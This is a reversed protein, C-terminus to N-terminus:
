IWNKQADMKEKTREDPAPAVMLKQHTSVIPVSPPSMDMRGHTGFLQDELSDLKGQGPVAKEAGGKPQAVNQGQAMAFGGASLLLLAATVLRKWTLFASVM